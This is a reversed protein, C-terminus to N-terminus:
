KANAPLKLEKGPTLVDNPKLDNIDMLASPSIGYAIAISVLDEGEKVKHVKHAPAEEAPQPAPEESKVVTEESKAVPTEPKAAEPKAAAEASKAGAAPAAADKVAAPAKAAAQKVPASKDSASAAALKAGTQKEAPVKLKQGVRLSDNVLGNLAKLARISIGYDGAIQGLSDGSKVVYDKTPGEYAVFGNKTKVPPKTNAALSSAKPAAANKVKDKAAAKAAPEAGKAVATAAPAGAVPVKIKRGKQIHNPNKIGPNLALIAARSCKANRAIVGLSDGAKVVYETYTAGPASPQAAAGSAPAAASKTKAKVPSLPKVERIAPKESPLPERVALGPEAPAAPPQTNTIIPGQQIPRAPVGQPQAAPGAPPAHRQPAPPVYTIVQKDDPVQSYSPSRPAYKGERKAKESDPHACGQMMLCAAVVNVGLVLGLKQVKM